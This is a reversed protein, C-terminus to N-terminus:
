DDQADPVVHRNTEDLGGLDDPDTPPTKHYHDIHYSTIQVTQLDYDFRMKRVMGVDGNVGTIDYRIASGMEVDFSRVGHTAQVVRQPQACEQSLNRSALENGFDGVHNWKKVGIHKYIRTGVKEPLLEDSSVYTFPREDTPDILNEGSNLELDQPCLLEPQMYKEGFTVVIANAYNGDPDALQTLSPPDTKSLDQAEFIRDPPSEFSTRWIPYLRTEGVAPDVRQVIDFPFSSALSGLGERLSMPRGAGPNFRGPSDGSRRSLEFLGSPVNANLGTFKHKEDQTGTGVDPVNSKFDSLATGGWIRGSLGPSIAELEDRLYYPQAFVDELVRWVRNGEYVSSYGPGGVTTGDKMLTVGLSQAIQLSPDDPVATGAGSVRAFIRCKRSGWWCLPNASDDLNNSAWTYNGVSFTIRVVTGIPGNEPDENRLTKFNTKKTWYSTNNIVEADLRTVAGNHQYVVDHVYCDPEFAVFAFCYRLWSNGVQASNNYGYPIVERWGWDNSPIHPWPQGPQYDAVNRYPWDNVPGTSDTSPRPLSDIQNSGANPSQSFLSGMYKAFHDSNMQFVSCKYLRRAHPGYEGESYRDGDGAPGWTADPFSTETSTPLQRSPWAMEPLFPQVDITVQFVNANISTPNRDFFGSAIPQTEGTGLDYLWAWVMKKSWRGYVVDRLLDGAVPVRANPGGSIDVNFNMDTIVQIHQTLPGLDADLVGRSLRAEWVVPESHRKVASGVSAPVPAMLGSGTRNKPGCWYVTREVGNEDHYMGMVLYALSVGVGGPANEQTFDIPM